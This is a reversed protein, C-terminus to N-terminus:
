PECVACASRGAAEHASRLQRTVSKGAVFPCDPRHFLQTRPASVFVGDDAGGNLRIEDPGEAPETSRAIWDWLETGAAVLAVLARRRERLWLSNGIAAVALGCMGVNLWPLQRRVVASASAEFWGLLIVAVAVANCLCIGAVTRRRWPDPVATLGSLHVVASPVTPVLAIDDHDATPPLMELKAM